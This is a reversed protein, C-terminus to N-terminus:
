ALWSSSSLSYIDKSGPLKKPAQSVLFGFLVSDFCKLPSNILTCVFEAIRIYVLLQLVCHHCIFFDVWWVRVGLLWLSLNNNNNNNNNKTVWLIRQIRVLRCDIWFSLSAVLLDVAAVPLVSILGAPHHPLVIARPGTPSCHPGATQRAYSSGTRQNGVWQKHCWLHQTLEM